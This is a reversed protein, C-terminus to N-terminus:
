SAMALIARATSSACMSLTNAPTRQADPIGTGLSWGSISFSGTTGPAKLPTWVLTEDTLPSGLQTRSNAVWLGWFGRGPYLNDAVAANSITLTSLMTAAPDSNISLGVAAQNTLVPKVNDYIISTSLTRENGIKDVLKLVIPNSSGPQLTGPYAVLNAFYNGDVLFPEPMNTPSSGLALTNIGSCEERASIELYILTNRTYGPDGDSAGSDTNFDQLIAQGNALRVPTFDKSKNIINPNSARATFEVAADITVTDSAVQGQTQANRLQVFLTAPDCSDTDESRLTAPVPVTLTAQYPKWGASDNEIDTPAANWRWRLETPTGILDKFTVTVTEKDGILPADNDIVPVAGLPQVSVASFLAYGVAPGPRASWNEFVVHFYTGSASINAAGAYNFYTGSNINRLIRPSWDGGAPKFRYYVYGDASWTVHLNGVSDADISVLDNAAGQNDPSLRRQTWQGNSQRTSVWVGPEISKYAVHLTGDPTYAASPSAYERDTDTVRVPEFSTGNWISVYIQLANGFGRFYAVALEGNPAM